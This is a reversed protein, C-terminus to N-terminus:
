EWDYFIQGMRMIFTKDKYFQAICRAKRDANSEFVITNDGLFDIVKIGDCVKGRIKLKNLTKLRNFTLEDIFQPYSTDDLKFINKMNTKGMVWVYSFRDEFCSPYCDDQPFFVSKTEKSVLACFNDGNDFTLYYYLWDTLNEKRKASVIKKDTYPNASKILEVYEDEVEVEIDLLSGYYKKIEEISCINNDINYEILTKVENLIWVAQTMPIVSVLTENFNTGGFWYRSKNYCKITRDLSYQKVYAMFDDINQLDYVNEHGDAGRDDEWLNILDVVNKDSLEKFNLKLTTKM